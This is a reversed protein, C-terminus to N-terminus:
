ILNPVNFGIKLISLNGSPEAKNDALLLFQEM